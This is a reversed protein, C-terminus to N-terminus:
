EISADELTFAVTFFVAWPTEISDSVSIEGKPDSSLDIVFGWDLIVKKQEGGREITRVPPNAKQFSALSTMTELQRILPLWGPTSIRTM